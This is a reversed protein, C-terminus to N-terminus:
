FSTEKAFHKRALELQKEDFLSKRMKRLKPKGWIGFFKPGLMHTRPFDKSLAVVAGLAATRSSHFFPRSLVQLLKTPIINTSCIGPHVICFKPSNHAIVTLNLLRKARGYRKMKTKVKESRPDSWDPRSKKWAYSISSQFVVKQVKGELKVALYMPGLFNTMYQKDGSLVGANNILYDAKVNAAFRNISDINSVDLEAISIKDPDFHKALKVKVTEGKATNRVAMIVDAGLILCCAAIERGIIGTAGTVIVTKGKLSACNKLLYNKHKMKKFHIFSIELQVIKESPKGAIQKASAYSNGIGSYVFIKGM